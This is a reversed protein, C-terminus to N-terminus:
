LGLTHSLTRGFALTAVAVIAIVLCAVMGPMSADVNMRGSLPRNRKLQRM